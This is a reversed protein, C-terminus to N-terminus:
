GGKTLDVNKHAISCQETAVIGVNKTSLSASSGTLKFTTAGDGADIAIEDAAKLTLAGDASIVVNLKAKVKTTTLVTISSLLKTKSTVGKIGTRISAGGVTHKLLGRVEQDIGKAASTLKAGGVTELHLGSSSWDIAGVAAEIEAGGVLRVTTKTAARSIGGIAFMDILKGAQDWGLELKTLSLQGDRQTLFMDSLGGTATSLAGQVQTTFGSQAGQQALQGQLQGGSPMQGGFLGGLQGQFSTQLATGAATLPAQGSVLATGAANAAGAFAGGLFQQVGASGGAALAQASRIPAPVLGQLAQKAMAKFDPMKLSGVMSVRLVGVKETDKAEITDSGASGIKVRESGGITVARNKMVSRSTTRGLDVTEDKGVKTTRNGMTRLSQAAGVQREEDRGIEEERDNKILGEWDKQARFEVKQSGAVDDMSIESYGGGGPSSPTQISMKTKNAPQAYQPPAAGNIARGVGIPRDPDGDLFGVHVEWGTRALVMSSATEQVLRLWRSDSDDARADRDWHMQATFRGFKDTHIEEGSPGRVFATHHGPVRPKPTLPAPRFPQQFPIAEFLNRYSASAQGDEEAMARHTVRVLLWEEGFAGRVTPDLVFAAGARFDIAAGEGELFTAGVQLADLRRQALLTGRGDDRFGAPYEYVELDAIGDPVTATSRLGLEPNQWDYDGFTVSSTCLRAGRRIEHINWGVEGLGETAEVLLIPAGGRLRPAGRSDDGLFFSGDEELAMYFGEHECLRQVFALDTERYQICYSRAPTATVEVRVKAGHEELISAIIEEARLRRFKRSSTRLSLPLLPDSLELTTRHAGHVHGDYRIAAVVLTWMREALGSARLRVVKGLSTPLDIVQRSSLQVDATTRRSLEERVEVRRVWTDDPLDVGEVVFSLTPATM